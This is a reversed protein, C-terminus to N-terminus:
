GLLVRNGKNAERYGKLWERHAESQNSKLKKDYHKEASRRKTANRHLWKAAEEPTMTAMKAQRKAEWTARRKANPGFRGDPPIEKGRHRKRARDAEQDLRERLKDAVDKHMHELKAERNARKVESVRKRAEEFFMPSIEGGPTLNYGHPTLTGHAEIAVIEM